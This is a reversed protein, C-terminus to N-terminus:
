GAQVIFDDALIVVMGGMIRKNNRLDQLTCDLAELGHRHSMTCEDWVLLKCQKLMNGRDSNKSINCM